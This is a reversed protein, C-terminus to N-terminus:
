TYKMPYHDNSMMKVACKTYVYRQRQNFIKLSLLLKFDGNFRIVFVFFFKFICFGWSLATKFWKLLFPFISNDFLLYNHTFSVESVVGDDFDDDDQANVNHVALISVLFLSIVGLLLYNPNM